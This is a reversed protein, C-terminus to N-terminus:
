DHYLRCSRAKRVACISLGRGTRGKQGAPLSREGTLRMSVGRFDNRCPLRRRRLQPRLSGAGDVPTLCASSEPHFPRFVTRPEVVADSWPVPAWHALAVAVACCHASRRLASAGGDASRSAQFLATRTRGRWWTRADLLADCTQARGGVSALLVSPLIVVVEVSVAGACWRGFLSRDQHHSPSM